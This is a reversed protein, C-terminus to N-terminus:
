LSTVAIRDDNQHKHVNVLAVGVMVHRQRGPLEVLYAAAAAAGLRHPQTAIPTPPLGTSTQLMVLAVAKQGSTSPPLLVMLSAMPRAAMEELEEAERIM